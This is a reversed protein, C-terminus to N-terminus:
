CNSALLVADIRNVYGINKLKEVAALENHKCPSLSILDGDNNGGPGNCMEPLKSEFASLLIGSM